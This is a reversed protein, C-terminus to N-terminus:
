KEDWKYRSEDTITMNAATTTWNWPTGSALEWPTMSKASSDAMVVIARLNNRLAVNGTLSGEARNRGAVSPDSNGGVGWRLISNCYSSFQTAPTATSDNRCVPPQALNSYWIGSNPTVWDLRQGGRRHAKMVMLVTDSPSGLATTSIPYYNMVSGVLRSPSHITFAYGYQPCYIKAVTDLSAPLGSSCSRYTEPTALPDQFIMASKIYPTLLYGWSKYLDKPATHAVTFRLPADADGLNAVIVQTDDFDGAYLPVAIGQQKLNSLSATAKAAHRAQAFVPFLIAALIAIIAIVVLLEILTFGLRVRKQRLINRSM